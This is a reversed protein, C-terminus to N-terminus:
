SKIMVAAEWNSELTIPGKIEIGEKDIIGIHYKPFSRADRYYLVTMVQKILDLAEEKSMEKNKEYAARIVPTAMYAGYGTAIIPDTYATGLKDVTGLFPKGNELGAIIFNNWFPDFKSRRNYMIRTLWCHLSKPKLTFGDDLCEEELIKQEILNKIYQYDAYDGGAGLLINNNVKMIRECNRYRALSGYSALIDAAILVGDKYQIGVVSTGTTTPAQSRQIGDPKGHSVTGPFNYSVGPAPGNQWFPSPSQWDGRGLLAM